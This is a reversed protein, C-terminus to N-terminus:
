SQSQALSRSPDRTKPAVRRLHEKVEIVDEADLGSAKIWEAVLQDLYDRVWTAGDRMTTTVDDGPETLKIKVLIYDELPHPQYYGIYSVIKSRGDRVWRHYLMGQLLNGITHDEGHIVLTYFDDLNPYSQVDVKDTDNKILANVISDLKAQLVKIAKFVLYTPRLGCESDIFFEFRRPEGEEDKEFCRYAELTHFQSEIEALEEETVDPRAQKVDDIRQRLAESALKPDMLNRFFCKSVPSWRAHMKGSGRSPVCEVHLEEGTGGGLGGSPPRLYVLLVHDKTIPCPPFLADRVQQPVRSGTRDFVDISATTVALPEDGDMPSKVRIVCKYDSPDFAFLQNESVCVPVLSIRHGLFENHLTSTNKLIHVGTGVPLPASTDFNFAVTEVNSRICRRIANVICLGVDHVEFRIGKTPGLPGPTIKQFRAM